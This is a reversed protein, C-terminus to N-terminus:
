FGDLVERGVYVRVCKSPLITGLAVSTILLLPLSSVRTGTHELPRPATEGGWEVCQQFSAPREPCSHGPSDPMGKVQEERRKEPRSSLGAFPPSLDEVPM